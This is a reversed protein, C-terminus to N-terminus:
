PAQCLVKVNVKHGKGFSLRVIFVELRETGPHGIHGDQGQLNVM